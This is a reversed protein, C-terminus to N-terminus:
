LDRYIPNSNDVGRIQDARLAAHKRKERKDSDHLRKCEQETKMREKTEKLKKKAQERNKIALM